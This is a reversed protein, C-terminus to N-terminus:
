VSVSCSGCIRYALVPRAVIKIAFLPKACMYQIAIYGENNDETVAKPDQLAVRPVKQWRMQGIWERCIETDSYHHEHTTADESFPILKLTHTQICRRVYTAIFNNVMLRYGNGPYLPWNELFWKDPFPIIVKEMCLVTGHHTNLASQKCSTCPSPLGCNM